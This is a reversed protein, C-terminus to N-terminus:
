QQLFKTARAKLDASLAKNGVDPVATVAKGLEEKTVIGKEVLIRALAQIAFNTAQIDEPQMFNEGQEVLLMFANQITGITPVSRHIELVPM